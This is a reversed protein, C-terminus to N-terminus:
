VNRMQPPSAPSSGAQADVRLKGVRSESESTSLRPLTRSYTAAVREATSTSTSLSESCLGVVNMKRCPVGVPKTPAEPEPQVVGAPSAWAVSSLHEDDPIVLIRKSAGAAVDQPSEFAVVRDVCLRRGPIGELVVVQDETALTRDPVGVRVILVAREEVVEVLLV